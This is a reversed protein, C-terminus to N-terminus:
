MTCTSPVWAKYRCSALAAPAGPLTHERAPMVAYSGPPLATGSPTDLKGGMGAPFTGSIVTLHEAMSHWHRPVRYRDPIRLRMVFDGQKGPDGSLLALDAGKPLVPPAAGWRMQDPSTAVPGSAAMAAAPAFALLAALPLDEM